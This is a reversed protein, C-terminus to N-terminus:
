KIYSNFASEKSTTKINHDDDGVCLVVAEWPTFVIYVSDIANHQIFFSLVASPACDEEFHAELKRQRGSKHLQKDIEKNLEEKALDSVINLRGVYDKKM